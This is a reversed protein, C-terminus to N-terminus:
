GCGRAAKRVWIGEVQSAHGIQVGGVHPWKRAPRHLHSPVAKPAFRSRPLDAHGVEELREFPGARQERVEDAAVCVPHADHRGHAVADGQRRGVQRHTRPFRDHHQGLLERRIHVHPMVQSGARPGPHNGNRARGVVVPSGSEFLSDVLAARHHGDRDAM